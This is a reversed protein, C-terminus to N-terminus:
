VCERAGHSRRWFSSRIHYDFAPHRQSTLAIWIAPSIRSRCPSTPASVGIHRPYSNNLPGLTSYLDEVRYLSLSLRRSRTKTALLLSGGRPCGLPHLSPHWPNRYDLSRVRCLVQRPAVYSRASPYKVILVSISTPFIEGLNLDETHRRKM